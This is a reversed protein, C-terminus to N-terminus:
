GYRITDIPNLKTVQYAPYIVSLLTILMTAAIVIAVDGPVILVPLTDIYYIDAPPKIFQCKKLMLSLGTGLGLGLLIGTLGIILGEYFFIRGINIRKLGLASLIGIERSKEVTLLLLNSIINFAAVLIILTLIIFMMIKELKLAAFLNSNTRQWSRFNYPYSYENRFAGTFIDAKAPNTVAIGLGTVSNEMDFLKQASNLSVFALNSDYEYMGSHIFGNVKFKKMRPVMTMQSPSILVVDSGVRADLNAALEKGLIIEGDKLRYPKVENEIIVRSINVLGEEKPWDIGKLVAGITHQKNRILIQGYIFPAVATIKDNNALSLSLTEYEIFNTPNIKTLVIHPQLTLIKDRIDKHFGTMVALTVILAAVGLTIGGVAILTTLLTFVGKRRAKIYRLAIFLELAM